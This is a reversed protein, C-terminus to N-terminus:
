GFQINLTLITPYGQPVTRDGYQTKCLDWGCVCDVPLDWVPIFHQTKRPIEGCSISCIYYAADNNISVYCGSRIAIEPKSIREAM